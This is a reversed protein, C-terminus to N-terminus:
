KNGKPILKKFWKSTFNYYDIGFDLTALQFKVKELSEEPVEIQSFHEKLQKLTKQTEIMSNIYDFIIKNRSDNDNDGMFFLRVLSEEKIRGISIPEKIWNSYVERGAKTIKYYKKVRSNEIVEKCVVYQQKELKKLAPNISGFSNSYFYSISQEMAKKIDYATLKKTQLFGLIINDLM